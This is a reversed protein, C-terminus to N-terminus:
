HGISRHLWSEVGSTSRFCWGGLAPRDQLLPYQQLSFPFICHISTSVHDLKFYSSLVEKGRGTRLLANLLLFHLLVDSPTVKMHRYVFFLFATFLQAEILTDAASNQQAPKKKGARVGSSNTEFRAWYSYLAFKDSAQHFGTCPLLQRVQVDRGDMKVVLRQARKMIGLHFRRYSGCWGGSHFFFLLFVFSFFVSFFNKLFLLM